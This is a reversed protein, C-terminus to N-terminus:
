SAGGQFLQLPQTTISTPPNMLNGDARVIARFTVLDTNFAFDDSREFRVGGILRVFYQSFDGFAISKNGTGATQGYAPMFPDAVLPKGLLLDPSGLITSPEWVPRANTDVMKRLLGLTKDAALWYCSRSQRYPAIISYELDLLNNYTPAGTIGTGGPTNYQASIVNSLGGTVAVPASNTGAVIGGSMGNTGNVLSTGLMNGVARGASMALYQLLNIGSDDILERAVQVLIGFKNSSLTKQGFGPDAGPLPAGQQASINVQAGATTQGTQNTVYPIQLPEGGQSNIVSPGCQMLGSVEILYSIMQDYFDIPVLGAGSVNTFSGPTGGGVYNDYLVRSEYPTLGGGPFQTAPGTSRNEILRNVLRSSKWDGIDLSRVDARDRDLFARARETFPDETQSKSRLNTAQRGGLDDFAASTEKDRKEDALIGRLRTDVSDLENHLNEYKIKEDTTFVNRKEAAVTANLGKLEEALRLRTDNLSQALESAVTNIGELPM